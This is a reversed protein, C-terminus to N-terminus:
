RPPMPMAARRSLQDAGAFSRRLRHWVQPAWWNAAGLVHMFAPVLCMRVLTADVIVALTLGVGFMRVISVDAASLAAFSISMVLAAATVVRGARALGLAISEDNDQKTRPSAKWQEHIRSMLFVEYDMSLGFAICFLLVPIGAVLAGSTTTGLGGLHGEQFIWVLAGFAATLSLTNLLLAKLPIVISGTLAFLLGFTVAAIVFIVRPLRAIISAATDRSIQALGTILVSRGGPAAIDHIRRLQADSSSTSVATSHLTLYISGDKVGAPASPQGVRQGHVFTGQPSSVSAIDPVSSLQAAYRSLEDTSLGTVNSVVLALDLMPNVAFGQRLRDGVQRASASKPLVRDDPFGSRMGAFPLGVVVLLVIVALGILHAHRMVAKTSRYWFSREITVAASRGRRLVRRALQRVDFSDLKGGLLVLAAPTLVLAVAATLTVVAVGAFAFSRMFYMPFLALATMSLAVTLASFLVTRGATTMTVILARSRDENVKLEDRFRSVILLTYDVALALGMAITLNLAFTSVQTFATILRLIATVGIIAVVGVGLPLAAALLGGFVWTLVAFCLPISIAEITVLDRESQSNIQAYAVAPGGVTVHVGDREIMLAGALEKAHKQGESGGGRIGAVVLGTKGDISILASAGLPPLTWASVVGSVYDSTGLRHAIELGIAKASSSTAGQDSSVAFVMQLDGRGFRATLLDAARSSEARPDEFGGSSLSSIVPFGFIGACVTILAVTGLIRRPDALVLRAICAFAGPRESTATAARHRPSRRAIIAFAPQRRRTQRERPKIQHPRRSGRLAVAVRPNSGTSGRGDDDIM